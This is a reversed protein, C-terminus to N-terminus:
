KLKYVVRGLTKNQLSVEARIKDGPLLRIFNRRMRGSLHCLIVTSMMDPAEPSVVTIQVRFQTNPLNELIVGEVTFVGSSNM